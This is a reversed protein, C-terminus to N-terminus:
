TNRLTKTNQKSLNNQRENHNFSFNNSRFLLINEVVRGIGIYRYVRAYFLFCIQYNNQSKGIFSRRM